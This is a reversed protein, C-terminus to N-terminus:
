SSGLWELKKVIWRDLIIMLDFVCGSVIPIIEDCICHLLEKMSM